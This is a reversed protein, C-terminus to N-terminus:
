CGPKHTLPYLHELLQDMVAHQHWLWRLQRAKIDYSTPQADLQSRLL